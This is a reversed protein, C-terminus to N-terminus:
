QLFLRNLLDTTVGMQVTDFRRWREYGELVDLAGIDQGAPRGRGGDRGAGGRGQLRSQPGARRDPPHWARRRRRRPWTFRGFARAPPSVSRGPAAQGRRQDGLKLGFRLELEAEFLFPDSAM